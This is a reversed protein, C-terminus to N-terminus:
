WYERDAGDNFIPQGFRRYGRYLGLLIGNATSVGIGAALLANGVATTRGIMTGWESALCDAVWDTSGSSDGSM